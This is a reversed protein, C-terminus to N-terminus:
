TSYYQVEEITKEMSGMGELILGLLGEHRLTHAILENRKKQTYKEITIEEWVGM